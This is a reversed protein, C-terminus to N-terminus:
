EPMQSLLTLKMVVTQQETTEVLLYLELLGGRNVVLLTPLGHQAAVQVLETLMVLEALDPVAPM